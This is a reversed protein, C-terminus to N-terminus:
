LKMVKFGAAKILRNFVALGIGVRSPLRAYIVDVGRAGDLARLCAFLNHAQALSDNKPGCSFVNEEPLYPLDEEFCIIGCRRQKKLFEYVAEDPGDLVTLPADPAYHRYKMGPAEPVGDFKGTVCPDLTVKDCILSLMEVTVAGPRLLRIEGNGVLKVVTSEVGYDCDGDDILADVRGNLDHEIHSFSTPSPKGSLNASPAAIPVGALSILEHATKHAPVRIGVTPLGGTVSDPIVPRKPLIVTLPGPMFSAALSQFLRNVVCYKGADRPSALHVILPNDSPRGKASYIKEAAEGDLANAGLGYVTETPFAVLGGNRIIEAAPALSAKGTYRIILTNM